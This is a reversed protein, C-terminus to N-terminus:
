GLPVCRGSGWEMDRTDCICVTQARNALRSLATRHRRQPDRRPARQTSSPKM